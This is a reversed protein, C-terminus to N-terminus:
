RAAAPAHREGLCPVQGAERLRRAPRRGRATERHGDLQDADGPGFAEQQPIAAMSSRGM